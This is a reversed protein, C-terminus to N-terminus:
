YPKQAVIRFNSTRSHVSKQFIDLASALILFPLCSVDFFSAVRPLRWKELIMHHASQLWFNPSLLYSVELIEFGNQKLLNSLTKENYLVWHRPIHWGGWYRKHFLSYDWSDISPTEIILFGGPALIKFAHNVSGAPDELHEIVQNMIIGNPSPGRWELVEFRSQIANLGLSKVAEIAEHAFDVGYLKWTSDGYKQLLGLLEGNGSGVDVVIANKGLYTNVTAIKRRQVFSRLKSIFGGLHEHFRHPIYNTPYIQELTFSQPRDRLYVLGCLECQVFTFENQCTHYEFDVGRGVETQQTSGCNNCETVVITEVYSM